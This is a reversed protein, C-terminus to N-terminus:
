VYYSFLARSLIRVQVASNGLKLQKTYRRGIEGSSYTHPLNKCSLACQKAGVCTIRLSRSEFEPITLDDTKLVPANFREAM